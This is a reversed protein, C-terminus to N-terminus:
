LGKVTLRQPKITLGERKGAMTIIVVGSM